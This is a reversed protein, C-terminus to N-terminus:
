AGPAAHHATPAALERAAPSYMLDIDPCAIGQAGLLAHLQGRHHTQHNLFHAVCLFYPLAKPTGDITRFHLTQGLRAPDLGRVFVTVRADEERRAAVFDAVDPCPVAAVSSLAEGEGTLRHLWLRDALLLHNAIGQMSGFNVASQATWQALGLRALEASLIDNAWAGALAQVLFLKKM